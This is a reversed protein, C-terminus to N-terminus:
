QTQAGEPYMVFNGMSYIIDCDFNTTGGPVPSTDVINDAGPSIIAYKSAVTGSAWPADTFAQFPHSWGDYKPIVKVYTPSLAVALADIDVTQDAGGYGVAAANYHGVDVSRAEWAVAITRMDTMTRRQRARSLAHLLNPIAIAALIGIIAVVILLEILTFGNKKM